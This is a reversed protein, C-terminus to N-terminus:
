EEDWDLGDITSTPTTQQAVLRWGNSTRVFVRTFRGRGRFNEERYRNRSRTDERRQRGRIESIGTMVATDGYVRIRLDEVQLSRVRLTGSRLDAITQAKNRTRGGATTNIFEDSLFREMFAPDPQVTASISERQLQRLEQEASGSSASYTTRSTAILAAAGVLPLILLFSKRPM